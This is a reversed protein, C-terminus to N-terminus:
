GPHRPRGLARPRVDTDLARRLRLDADGFAGLRPLGACHSTRTRPPVSPGGILPDVTRRSLPRQMRQWLRRRRSVPVHGGHVQSAVCGAVIMAGLADANTGTSVMGPAAAMIPNYHRDCVRQGGRGTSTAEARCRECRM